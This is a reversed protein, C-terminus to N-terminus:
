GQAEDAHKTHIIILLIQSAIGGHESHPRVHVVVLDKASIAAHRGRQLLLAERGSLQKIREGTKASDDVLRERGLRGVVLDFPLHHVDELM